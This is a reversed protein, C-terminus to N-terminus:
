MKEHIADATMPMVCAFDGTHQVCNEEEALQMYATGLLQYYKLTKRTCAQDGLFKEIKTIGETLRGANILQEFYQYRIKIDVAEPIGKLQRAYADARLGNHYPYKINSFSQVYLDHLDDAM